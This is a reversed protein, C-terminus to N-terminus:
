KVWEAEKDIFDFYKFIQKRGVDVMLDRNLSILNITRSNSSGVLEKFITGKPIFSFREIVFRMNKIENSTLDQKASYIMIKTKLILEM